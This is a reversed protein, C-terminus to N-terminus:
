VDANVEIREQGVQYRAPDIGLRKMKKYLGQRSLGLLEASTSVQGGTQALASEIVARETQSVIRELDGTEAGAVDEDPAAGRVDPSLVSGRIVPAPESQVHLLAREIENRLQRVNGPWPYRRLLAMAEDTVAAPLGPAKRLTRLFHRVLLEVDDPRKRLPPVTLQVLACAELLSWDVRGSEVLGVFDRTSTLM